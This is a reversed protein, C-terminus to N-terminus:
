GEDLLKNLQRKAQRRLRRRGPEHSGAARKRAAIALPNRPWVPVPGRVARKRKADNVRCAM